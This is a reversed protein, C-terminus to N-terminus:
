IGDNLEWGYCLRYLAIGDDVCGEIGRVGFCWVVKCLSGDKESLRGDEYGCECERGRM